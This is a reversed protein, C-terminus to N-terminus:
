MRVRKRRSFYAYRRATTRNGEGGSRCGGRRVDDTGGDGGKRVKHIKERTRSFEPLSVRGVKRPIGFMVPRLRVVMSM